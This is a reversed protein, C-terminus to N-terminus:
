PPRVSGRPPPPRSGPRATRRAAPRRAARPRRPAPSRSRRRRRRAAQVRDQAPLPGADCTGRRGAAGQQRERRRVARGRSGRSAILRTVAATCRVQRVPQGRRAAGADDAAPEVAARPGSSSRTRSRGASRRRRSGTTGRPTRRAAAPRRRQGLGAPQGLLPHALQQQDALVGRRVALVQTVQPQQLRHQRLERRHLANGPHPNRVQLRGLHPGAQEVDHGARRPHQGVEVQGELVRGPRQQAPHAPEAVALRGRAARASGPRAGSAPTRDLTMTPKGPSVSASTSSSAANRVPASQVRRRTRSSRRPRCRPPLTRRCARRRPSGRARTSCMASWSVALPGLLPDPLTPPAPRPPRPPRSPRGRVLSRLDLTPGLVLARVDVARGPAPSPTAAPRPDTAPGRPPRPWRPPRGRPEDQPDPTFSGGVPAPPRRGVRHRQGRARALTQFMALARVKTRSSSTGTKATSSNMVGPLARASRPSRPRRPRTASRGTRRRAPGGGPGSGSTPLITSGIASLASIPM